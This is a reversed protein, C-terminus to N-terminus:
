AAAIAARDRQRLDSPEFHASLVRNELSSVVGRRDFHAAVDVLSELRRLDLPLDPLLELGEHGV